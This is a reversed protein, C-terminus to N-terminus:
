WGEWLPWRGTLWAGCSCYQSGFNISCIDAHVVGLAGQPVTNIEFAGSSSRGRCIDQLSTIEDPRLLTRRPTRTDLTQSIQFSGAAQQWGAVGGAGVENWRLIVGRLIAKIAAMDAPDLDDDLICPAVRAALAMVDNIMAEAKAQDIEAFPALDDPTVILPLEAM